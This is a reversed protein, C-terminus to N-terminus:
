VHSKREANYVKVKRPPPPVYAPAAGHPAAVITCDRVDVWNHINMQLEPREEPHWRTGDYKKRLQIVAGEWKAKKAADLGSTHVIKNIKVWVGPAFEQPVADVAPAKATSLAFKDAYWYSPFDQLKVKARTETMMTDEVVYVVTASPFMGNIHDPKRVIKDGVKFGLTPAPAEEEGQLKFRHSSFVEGPYEECTLCGKGDTVVTIVDGIKCGRWNSVIRVVKDGPNFAM